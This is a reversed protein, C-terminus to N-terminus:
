PMQNKRVITAQSQRKCGLTFPGKKLRKQTLRSRKIGAPNKRHSTNIRSAHDFCIMRSSNFAVMKKLNYSNAIGAAADRLYEFPFSLLGEFAIHASWLFESATELDNCFGYKSLVPQLSSTVAVSYAHVNAAIWLCITRHM